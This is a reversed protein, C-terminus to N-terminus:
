YVIQLYSLRNLINIFDNLTVEVDLEYLRRGMEFPAPSSLFVVCFMKHVNAFVAPIGCATPQLVTM